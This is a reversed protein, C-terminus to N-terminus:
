VGKNRKVTKANSEKTIWKINSLSSTWYKDPVIVIYEWGSTKGM